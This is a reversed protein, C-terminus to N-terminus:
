FLKSKEIWAENGDSKIVFGEPVHDLRKEEISRDLMRNKRDIYYVRLRGDIEKNKYYKSANASYISLGYRNLSGVSIERAAKKEVPMIEDDQDMILQENEGLVVKHQAKARRIREKNEPKNINGYYKLFKSRPEGDVRESEYEYLYYNNGIKKIVYYSM